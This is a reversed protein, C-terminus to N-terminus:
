DRAPPTDLSNKEKKCDHPYRSFLSILHLFFNRQPFWMPAPLPYSICTEGFFFLFLLKYAHQRDRSCAMARLQCQRQGCHCCFQQIFRQEQRLICQAHLCALQISSWESMFLYVLIVVFSSLFFLLGSRSLQLM